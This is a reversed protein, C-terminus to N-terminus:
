PFVLQGAQDRIKSFKVSMALLQGDEVLEADGASVHSQVDFLYKGPGVIHSVDIIGSSEEDLTRVPPTLFLAPNHIALEGIRGNDPNFAWIRGLHTNNGVDEQLLVRGEADVTMNDFMEGPAAEPETNVGNEVHGPTVRYVRDITGGAEPDTVDDFRLRWVSSVGPFQDTTVFYFDNPSTPDWQGDEVRRFQTVGDTISESQLEFGDNQAAESMPELTFPDGNEIGDENLEDTVKIGFLGGGVLGARQVPNGTASKQGVYVYVESPPNSADAPPTGGTFRNTSDDLGLVVTKSQPFPSAVVNEFSMEGIDNLEYSEGNRDGSLIHAWAKGYRPGFPPRAEEGNLYILERAGLGSAPDFLATAAPLDASCFRDFAFTGPGTWGGASNHVFVAKIQDDGSVVSLDSTRLVWRSVFAGTSGHDRVAGLTPGLEHNMLVTFTGGGNAFAGLGDPIGVMRYEGDQPAGGPDIADIAADAEPVADGVTLIATTKVGTANPLVYPDADTTFGPPAASVPIAITLTMASGILIARRLVGRSRLSTM